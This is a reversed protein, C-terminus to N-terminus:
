PFPIFVFMSSFITKVSININSQALIVSGRRNAEDNVVKRNAEAKVMKKIVEGTVMKRNAEGKVMKKNAEDKVIKRPYKQLNLYTKVIQELKTLVAKRTATYFNYLVCHLMVNSCVDVLNNTKVNNKNMTLYYALIHSTTALRGQLM